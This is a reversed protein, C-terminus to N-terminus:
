QMSKAEASSVHRTLNVHKLDRVWPAGLDNKAVFDKSLLRMGRLASGCCPDGGEPAVMMVVDEAAAAAATANLSFGSCNM